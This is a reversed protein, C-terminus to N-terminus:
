QIEAVIEHNSGDISGQIKKLCSLFYFASSKSFETWDASEIKQQFSTLSQPQAQVKLTVPLNEVQVDRMGAAATKLDIFSEAILYTRGKSCFTLDDDEIRLPVCRVDSNERNDQLKKEYNVNRLFSSEFNQAAESSVFSFAFRAAPAGNISQLAFSASPQNFIEPANTQFQFLASNAPVPPICSRVLSESSTELSYRKNNGHIIASLAPQKTQVFVFTDEPIQTVPLDQLFDPGGSNGKLAAEMRQPDTAAYAFNSKIVIYLDGVDFHGSPLAYVTDNGIRTKKLKRNSALAIGVILDSGPALRAVAFLQPRNNIPPLVALGFEEGIVNLITKELMGGILPNPDHNGSLETDIWHALTDNLKTGQISSHVRKFDFLNLYAIADQPIKQTVPSEKQFYVFLQRKKQATKYWDFGFYGLFAFALATFIFLLANLIRSRFM